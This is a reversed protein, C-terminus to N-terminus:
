EKNLWLIYDCTGYVDKGTIKTTMKMLNSMCVPIKALHIDPLYNHNIPPSSFGCEFLYLSIVFKPHIIGATYL